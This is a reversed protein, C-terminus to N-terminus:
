DAAPRPGHAALLDAPFRAHCNGHLLGPEPPCAWADALDAYLQAGFWYRCLQRNWACPLAAFLDPAHLALLTYSRPGRPHGPHALRSLFPPFGARRCGCLDQDGLHAGKFHYKAIM